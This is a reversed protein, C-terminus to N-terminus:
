QHIVPAKLRKRVEDEFRSPDVHFRTYTILRGDKGFVTTEKRVKSYVASAIEHWSLQKVRLGLFRKMTIGEDDLTITGPYSFFVLLALGIFIFPYAWDASSQIEACVKYAALLFTPTGLWFMARLSYVPPFSAKAKRITAREFATERLVFHVAILASVVGVLIHPLAM